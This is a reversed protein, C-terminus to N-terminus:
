KWGDGTTCRCWRRRCCESLQAFPGRFAPLRRMQAQPTTGGDVLTDCWDRCRRRGCVVSVYRSPLTCCNWPHCIRSPNSNFSGWMMSLLLPLWVFLVLPLSPFGGPSISWARHEIARWLMVVCFVIPPYLASVMELPPIELVLISTCVFGMLLYVCLMLYCFLLLFCSLYLRQPLM